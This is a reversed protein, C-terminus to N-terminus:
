GGLAFTNRNCDAIACSAVSPSSECNSNVIWPALQFRQCYRPEYSNGLVHQNSDKNDITKEQGDSGSPVAGFFGELYPHPLRLPMYYPPQVNSRPPLKHSREKRMQLEVEEIWDDWQRTPMISLRLPCTIHCSRRKAFVRFSKM